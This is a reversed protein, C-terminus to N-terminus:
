AGAQRLARELEEILVPKTIYANAGLSLAHDIMPDATESSLMIVPLSRWQPRSRVFELLDLGSVEPMNIDLILVEPLTKEQMLAKGAQRANLFHRSQYGLLKLMLSIAKAMEEDDDVIWAIQM